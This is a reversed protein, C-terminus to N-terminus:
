ALPANPEGPRGPAAAGPFIAGRSALRGVGSGTRHPGPFLPAAPGPRSGPVRQGGMGGQWGGRGLLGRIAQRHRALCRALSDRSSFLTGFPLPLVPSHRMLGGIVEQHRALRPALWSLDELNAEGAPGCFEELAVPSLIATIDRFREAALTPLMDVVAGELPLLHAAPVLCFLYLAEGGSKQNLAAPTGVALEGTLISEERTTEM